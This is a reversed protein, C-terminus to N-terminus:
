EGVIFKVFRKVEIKEGTKATVENVIDKITKGADRIYESDNLEEVNKFDSTCVQMAVEHCLKKFDETKAVFDTECNIEILSGVKGTAHIYAYVLGDGATRDAKKAAKSAVKKMLEEKAKKMDGATDELAQKVELIGAGTEERLTKIDNINFQM